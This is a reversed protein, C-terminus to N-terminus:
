RKKKNTATINDDDGAGDEVGQSQRIKEAYEQLREKAQQQKKNGSATDRALQAIYSAIGARADENVNEILSNFIQDVRARVNRDMTNTNSDINSSPRSSSPANTQNQEERRQDRQAENGRTM